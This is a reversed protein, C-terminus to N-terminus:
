QDRREFSRRSAHGRHVKLSGEDIPFSSTPGWRGVLLAHRIYAEADKRTRGEPLRFTVRFAVINRPLTM